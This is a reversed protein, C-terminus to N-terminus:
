LEYTAPFGTRPDLDQIPDRSSVIDHGAPGLLSLLARDDPARMATFFARGADEVSAFTPQRPQQAFAPAISAGLFLAFLVYATFRVFCKCEHQGLISIRQLM